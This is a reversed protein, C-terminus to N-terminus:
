QEKKWSINKNSIFKIIKNDILIIGIIIPALPMLYRSSGVPGALTVIYGILCFSIFRLNKNIKSNFLFLIGSILKFINVGIILFMITLFQLSYKDVLFTFVGPIGTRNLHYLVGQQSNYKVNLKFFTTIDYRGPDILMLSSGKLHFYIYEILNDKIISTASNNLFKTRQNYDEIKSADLNIKDITDYAYNQNVSNLLFLKTNYNVLNITQISSYQYNGTRKYNWQFMVLVAIIPFLSIVIPYWKKTRISIFTFFLFSPIVFLYMTPKTYASLILTISYFFLYKKEYSCCYLVSFRFLLVLFFQFLVESMLTNAYIFHSPTLILLILFFIDNKKNYNFKLLTNRVIFVSIFSIINQALLIIFLPAKIIYFISLFLSYIPPRLSYFDMEINQSLDASYFVGKDIINKALTIYQYSDPIYFNTKHFPNYSHIYLAAVFYFLQIIILSIAFLYDKKDKLM